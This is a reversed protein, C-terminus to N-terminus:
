AQRGPASITLTRGRLRLRRARHGSRSVLIDVTCLRAGCRHGGLLTMGSYTSMSYEADFRGDALTETLRLTGPADTFAVDDGNAFMAVSAGAVPQQDGASVVHVAFRYRAIACKAAAPSASAGLMALTVASIALSPFSTWARQMSSRDEADQCDHNTHGTTYHGGM